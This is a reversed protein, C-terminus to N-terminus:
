TNKRIQQMNSLVLGNRDEGANGVLERGLYPDIYISTRSKNVLYIDLVPIAM